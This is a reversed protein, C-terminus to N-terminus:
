LGAVGLCWLGRMFYLPFFGSRLVLSGSFLLFGGNVFGSKFAWWWALDPSGEALGDRSKDAVGSRFDSCDAGFVGLDCFFVGLFRAGFVAVGGPVLDSSSLSGMM